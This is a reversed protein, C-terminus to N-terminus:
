ALHNLNESLWENYWDLFTLKTTNSMTLAPYVGNDNARDDVWINGAEQGTVILIYYIACGYHCIRISGTIHKNSFYDNEWNQFEESDYYNEDDEALENKLNWAESHPFDTQLFSPDEIDLEYNWNVLPLIGYAPGSGGNGIQTVFDKYDKPFKIHHTEEFNNVEDQTIVTNFKYKHHDSGFTNYSGKKLFGGGDIKKLTDHKSKIERLTM